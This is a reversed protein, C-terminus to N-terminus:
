RGGVGPLTQQPQSRPVWALDETMVYIVLAVAMLFMGVWFYWHHHIRKWNRGRPNGGEQHQDHTMKNM